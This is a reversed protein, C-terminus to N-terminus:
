KQAAGLAALAPGDVRMIRWEGQMKAGISEYFRISPTNWDLVSWEFRACGREAALAAVSAILAKGLGNGRAAPRVFLDELYIGPKGEFTSFNPFFLAFGQPDGDLEGILVEAYPREGFLYRGLEAEDFRVEHTLKEYEALERILSAILPLDAPVADRIAISM